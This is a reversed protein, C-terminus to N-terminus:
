NEFNEVFNLKKFKWTEFDFKELKRTDDVLFAIIARLEEVTARMFLLELASYYLRYVTTSNDDNELEFALYNQTFAKTANTIKKVGKLPYILPACRQILGLARQSNSNETILEYINRCTDFEEYLYGRLKLIEKKFLASKLARAEYHAYSVLMTKKDSPAKSFQSMYDEMNKNKIFTFM